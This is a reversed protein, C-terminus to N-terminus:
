YMGLSEHNAGQMQMKICKRESLYAVQLRQQEKSGVPIQQCRAEVLAGNM